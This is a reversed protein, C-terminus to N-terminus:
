DPIQPSFFGKCFDVGVSLTRQCWEEAWACALVAGGLLGTSLMGVGAALLELVAM